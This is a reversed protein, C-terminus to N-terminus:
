PARHRKPTPLALAALVTLGGSLAMAPTPGALALSLGAAGSLAVIGLFASPRGFRTPHIVHSM